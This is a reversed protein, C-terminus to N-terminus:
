FLSLYHNHSSFLFTVSLPSSLSLSLSLSLNHSSLMITFYSKQTGVVLLISPIYSDIMLTLSPYFFEARSDGNPMVLSASHHYSTIELSCYTVIITVILLLLQLLLVKSHRCCTFISPIYFDVMLTLSHYFFGARSDGNPM